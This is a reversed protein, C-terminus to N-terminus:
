SNSRHRASVWSDLLGEVVLPGSVAVILVAFSKAAPMGAGLFSALAAVVAGILYYPRYRWDRVAVWASAFAIALALVSFAGEPM